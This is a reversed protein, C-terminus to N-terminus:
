PNLLKNLAHAIPDPISEAGLAQSANSTTDVLLISRQGRVTKLIVKLPGKFAAMVRTQLGPFRLVVGNCLTEAVHVEARARATIAAHREKLEKIKRDAAQTMEQAEFLLETAKEKQAPTLQKQNAMLPQVTQEIKRAKARQADIAALAEPLHRRFPDDVGVEVITMVGATSGLTKCEVGGNAITNGAVLAGEAVVVKGSAVVTSNAIAVGCLVDGAAEVKANTIYKAHVSGGALVSGRDKAVISGVVTLDRTARVDAAEVAGDVHISGASHVKFLDLVNGHVIIDGPFDVNGVSFDVDGPIELVNDVRLRGSQEDVRVRGAITARITAGDNDLATNPGILLKADGQKVTAIADGPKALRIRTRDYHSTAEGAAAAAAAGPAPLFEFVPAAGAPAVPDVLSPPAASM